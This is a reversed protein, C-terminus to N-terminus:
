WNIVNFLLFFLFIFCEVLMNYLGNILMFNVCTCCDGLMEVINGRIVHYM